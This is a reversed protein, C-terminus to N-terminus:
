DLPLYDFFYSLPYALTKNTQDSDETGPSVAFVVGVVEGQTNVVPSGSNGPQCDIDLLMIPQDQVSYYGLVPGQLILQKFGRPNGIVSVTDGPAPLSSHKNVEIYPLGEAELRIWALDANETQEFDKSYFVRGDEFEIKIQKAKEVIHQNSIILGDGSVNFGTGTSTGDGTRAEIWVVASSAPTLVENDKLTVRHKLFDMSDNFLLHIQPLSIFLFILLLIGALIKYAPKRGYEQDDELDQDQDQPPLFLDKNDEHEDFDM